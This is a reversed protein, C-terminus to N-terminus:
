IWSPLWMHSIWDNYSITQGTYIPYFYVFMVAIGVVLIGAMAAGWTRRVPPADARGIIAGIAMTAGLIM